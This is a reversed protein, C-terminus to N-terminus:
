DTLRGRIRGLFKEAYIAARERVVDPEIPRGLDFEPLATLVTGAEPYLVTWALGKELEGQSFHACLHNFILRAISSELRDQSVDAVAAVCLLNRIAQASPQRRGPAWTELQVRLEQLHAEDEPALDQVPPALPTVVDDDPPLGQYAIGDIQAATIAAAPDAAGGGLAPWRQTHLAFLGVVIWPLLAGAVGLRIAAPTSRRASDWRFLLLGALGAALGFALLALLNFRFIAGHGEPTFGAGLADVAYRGPLFAAVRQTWAPLALLPVGVGGILILPLFICQGLAQVAPVDTALAALLLGLGLFAWAVGAYAAALHTPHPPWPTGYILHALLIQLAAASAILILRVLLTSGLLVPLARPLLRYRRWWGREREAVLATPLGFCAGGLASITIIQSMQHLLPPSGSRFITGFAILFFFPVLYGYILPQKAAFNLRLTLQFHYLFARFRRM